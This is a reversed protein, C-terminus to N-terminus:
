KENLKNFEKEIGIINDKPDIRDKGVKLRSVNFRINEAKSFQSRSIGKM